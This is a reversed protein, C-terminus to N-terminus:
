APQARRVGDRGRSGGRGATGADEESDLLRTGPTERVAAKMREAVEVIEPGSLPRPLNLVVFAADVRGRADCLPIGLWDIERREEFTFDTVLYQGRRLERLMEQFQPSREPAAYVVGDLVQEIRAKVDLRTAAAFGERRLLDLARLTLDVEAPDMTPQAKDLWEQVEGMPQGPLFLVGMPPSFPNARAGVRFLTTVRSPEGAAALPVIWDGFMASIVCHADLGHAINEMASGLSNVLHGRHGLAASGIGTLVPGLRIVKTADDRMLYGADVLTEVLPHLTSKSIELERSLESLSFMRGPRRALFNLLAVVRRTPNSSAGAM